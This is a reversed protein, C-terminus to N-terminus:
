LSRSFGTQFTCGSLSFVHIEHVGQVGDLSAVDREVGKLDIDRPAIELLLRGSRQVLPVATGIIMM